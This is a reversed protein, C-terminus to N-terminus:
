KNGEGLVTPRYFEENEKIALEVRQFDISHLDGQHRHAILTKCTGLLQRNLKSLTELKHSLELLRDFMQEERNYLAQFYESRIFDDLTDEIEVQRKSM